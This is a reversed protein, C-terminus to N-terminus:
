IREITFLKDEQMVAVQSAVEENDIGKRLKAMVDEIIGPKVHIRLKQKSNAIEFDGVIEESSEQIALKRNGVTCHTLSQIGDITCTFPTTQPVKITVRFGIDDTQGYNLIRRALKGMRVGLVLFPGTHGHLRAADDVEKKLKDDVASRERL